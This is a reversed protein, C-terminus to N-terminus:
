PRLLDDAGNRYPDAHKDIWNTRGNNLFDRAFVNEQPVTHLGEHGFTRRLAPDVPAEGRFKADSVANSHITIIPRGDRTGSGLTLQGGTTTARNTASPPGGRVEARMLGKAVDGATTTMSKGNVAVTTKRDPHSLLRNVASTYASNTRAVQRDSLNGQVDVKCVAKGDSMTCTTGTPDRGNVPDNGVYAYLNIQDDYGIPDTQVFRGLTPSYMRAKYYYMGVPSLWAQGTYQFRGLNYTSGALTGNPIGYEDYANLRLANGSADAVSVISGQHDAQLSRRDTLDAGAYWLVPDDSGAGHVYRNLLTGTPYLYEAVLEDGDYLFISAGSQANEMSLRGLPDYALTFVYSMSADLGARLRSERDYRYTTSGDSKLNGLADYTFSKPGAELYQNLGNTAYSRNVSTYGNYVYATNSRTRTVLQSAPNYALTTVLDASTGALDDAISTLRSVQDYGYTTQVGGRRQGSRVGEPRYTTSVVETSGMEKIAAQRDLGDYEYTFYIGDPWTLRTRNGNADHQYLLTRSPAYAATITSSSQRGFGDYTNTVGYGGEWGFRAATQLGRLDYDYCVDNSDSAESLATGAHCAATATAPSGNAEDPVRKHALRNLADFQFTLVAGDRKKLSTRNGNADYGYEERDEANVAGATTLANDATSPNYTTPPAASSPFRWQVRRDHGDYVMQAKNGNADVVFEQKGNATYGYTVYVQELSTGVGKRVQLLQGAADYINKTIRDPGHDGQPGLDCASAPLADFAWRNMRVATCELRGARDYGYQTVAHNVGSGWVREIIKRDMADYTTDTQSFIKLNPERWDLPDVAESQWTTIEGRETRVMRGAADYWDRVVAYKLPGPGDPDPAITATVRRESDYRTATTFNSPSAQCWAVQPAALAGFALTAATLTRMRQGIM